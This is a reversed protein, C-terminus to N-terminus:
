NCCMYMPENGSHKAEHNVMRIGKQNCRSSNSMTSNNSTIISSPPRHYSVQMRQSRYVHTQSHQITNSIVQVPSPRRSNNFNVPNTNPQNIHNQGSNALNQRHGTNQSQFNNNQNFNSRTTPYSLNQSQFNHAQFNINQTPFTSNQTQFNSNQNHFSAIRNFSGSNQRNTRNNRYSETSHKNSSNNPRNLNNYHNQRPLPRFSSNSNIRLNQQTQNPSINNNHRYQRYNYNPPSVTHFKPATNDLISTM